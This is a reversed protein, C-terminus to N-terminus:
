FRSPMAFTRSANRETRMQITSCIASKASAMRNRSEKTVRVLSKSATRAMRMLDMTTQASRALEMEISLQTQHALQTLALMERLTLSSINRANKAGLTRVMKLPAESLKSKEQSVNLLSASMCILALMPERQAFEAHEMPRSSKERRDTASFATRTRSILIITFQAHRVHEMLRTSRLELLVYIKSANKEIVQNTLNAQVNTTKVLRVNVLSQSSREKTTAPIRSATKLRLTLILGLNVFRALVMQFFSKV